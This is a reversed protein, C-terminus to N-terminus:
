AQVVSSVCEIIFFLFPIIMGPTFFFTFIKKGTSNGFPKEKERRSKKFAGKFALIVGSVAGFVIWFVFFILTSNKNLVALIGTSSGAAYDIVTALVSISNNLAHIIVAPLVSGTKVTVYGLVLGVLTAFIFQVLNGHLVGFLISVCVVAFAKGYNKLLGLTCCRMAFEECIAPVVATGVLCLLCSFLSDTEPASSSTLEYGLASFIYSIISVIYDAAVCCFMGFGTWLCLMKISIKKSPVLGNKYKGKNAAAMIAFPVAVCFLSVGIINFSYYFTASSYYLEYLSSNLMLCFSVVLQFVIYLCMTLGVINGLTRIKKRQAKADALCVSRIYEAENPYSYTYGYPNYPNYNGYNYPNGGNPHNGNYYDM